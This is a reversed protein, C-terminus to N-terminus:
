YFPLFRVAPNQLLTPLETTLFYSNAGPSGVFPIVAGSAGAAWGWSAVRWGLSQFPGPLAGVLQGLPSNGLTQLGSEEAATMYETGGSWVARGVSPGLAAENLAPVGISVGVAGAGGATVAGAAFKGLFRYQADINQGVLILAQGFGELPQDGYAWGGTGGYSIIADAAAVTGGCGFECAIPGTGPSYQVSPNTGDVWQWGYEAVHIQALQFQSTAGQIPDPAFYTQACAQPNAMCGPIQSECSTNGECPSGSTMGSPDVNVLPNNLAYAYGNWSQSSGLSAGASGPDVSNFRGLTATFYRANFYDMGSESDRVQGTFKETVDSVPGWQSTRNAQNAGVEEGFPLYDHRGQVQGNQDTVMRVSGLHDTSYYCTTCVGGAANETAVLDGAGDAVYDKTWAGNVYESALGNVDYVYVTTAGGSISKQVRRGLGDYFLGEYAFTGQAAMLENEANYRLANGNVGLVNGAADYSWRSDQNNATYYVNATATPGALAIGTANTVWMNGWTDFNYNRNWGAGSGGGGNDNAVTPRNLADYNFSQWYNYGTTYTKPSTGGCNREVSRGSGKQPKVAGRSTSVGSSSSRDRDFVWCISIAAFIWIMGACWVWLGVGDLGFKGLAARVSPEQLPGSLTVLGSATTLNLLTVLMYKVTLRGRLALVLFCPVLGLFLLVCGSLAWNNSVLPAYLFGAFRHLELLFLLVVSLQALIAVARRGLFNPVQLRNRYQQM